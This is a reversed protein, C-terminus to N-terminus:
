SRELQEMKYDDEYKNRQIHKNIEKVIENIKDMFLLNDPNKQELFDRTTDSIYIEEIM